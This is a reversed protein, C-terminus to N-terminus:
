VARQRHVSRSCLREGCLFDVQEFPKRIRDGEAIGAEVIELLQLFLVAGQLVGVGLDLLCVPELGFEQGIHRVLQAGRHVRDDAEGAQDVALRLPQQRLALDPIQFFHQLARLDQHAQDAVHEVQRLDLGPSEFEHRLFEGQM